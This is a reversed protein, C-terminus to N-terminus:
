QYELARGRPTAIRMEVSIIRSILVRDYELGFSTRPEPKNGALRHNINHLILQPDSM